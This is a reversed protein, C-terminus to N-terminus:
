NSLLSELSDPKDIQRNIKKDLSYSSGTDINCIVVSIYSIQKLQIVQTYDSRENRQSKKINLEVHWSIRMVYTLLAKEKM